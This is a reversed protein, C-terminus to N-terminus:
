GLSRALDGRQALFRTGRTLSEGALLLRNRRILFCVADLEIPSIDHGFRLAHLGLCILQGAIHLPCVCLKLFGALLQPQQADNLPRRARLQDAPNRPYPMTPKEPMACASSLKPIEERGVDDRM